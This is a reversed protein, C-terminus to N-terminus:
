KYVTSIVRLTQQAFGVINNYEEIPSSTWSSLLFLTDCNEGGGELLEALKSLTNKEIM